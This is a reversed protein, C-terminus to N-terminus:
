AFIVRLLDRIPVEGTGDDCEAILTEAQEKTLKQPGGSILLHLLEEKSVTEKSFERDNFSKDWIGLSSTIDEKWRNIDQKAMSKQMIALFQEFTCDPGGLSEENEDEEDGTPNQGLSRLLPSLDTAKISGRKAEDFVAFAM